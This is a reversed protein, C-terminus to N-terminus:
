IAAIRLNNKAITITEIIALSYLLLVRLCFKISPNLLFSNTRELNKVTINNETIEVNNTNAKRRYVGKIPAFDTSLSSFTGTNDEKHSSLVSGSNSTLPILTVEVGTPYTSRQSVPM